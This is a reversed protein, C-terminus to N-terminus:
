AGDASRRERIEAALRANRMQLTYVGSWVKRKFDKMTTGGNVRVRPLMYSDAGPQVPGGGKKWGALYGVARTQAAVAQNYMGSPYAVATIREILREELVRKSERLEYDLDGPSLSTLDYHHVTHSGYGVQERHMILVDDWSVHGETSVTNTVLFLTAPVGYKRLIPFAHDFNDKYGDDMTLVVAKQPLPRNERVAAEVERALLFAFGNDVLYKVQTEFNAPSVTLDRMLPSRAERETLDCIRHYMLVPVAFQTTLNEPPPQKRVPAVAASTPLSLSTIAPAPPTPALCSRPQLCVCILAAGM